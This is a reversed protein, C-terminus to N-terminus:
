PVRPPPAGIRYLRVINDVGEGSDVRKMVYGYLAVAALFLIRLLSCCNIKIFNLLATMHYTSHRM